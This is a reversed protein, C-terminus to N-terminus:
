ITQAPKNRLSSAQEHKCLQNCKKRPSWVQVQQSKQSTRLPLYARQITRFQFLLHGLQFISTSRKKNRVSASTVADGDVGLGCGSLQLAFCSWSYSCLSSFPETRSKAHVLKRAHCAACHNMLCSATDRAASSAILGPETTPVLIAAWALQLILALDGIWIDSDTFALQQPQTM